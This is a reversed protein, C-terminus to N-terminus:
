DTRQVAYDALNALTERVISPKFILLEQKAQKIYEQAIKETEGIGQYKDIITVIEHFEMNSIKGCIVAEKIKKQESSNCHKLTLIIPMTLKGERLDTGTKKGLIKEESTYDLIDDQLQYALGLNFAFNSLAKTFKDSLKRIIAAGQGCVGMLAATKGAIIKQYEQETITLDNLRTLELVQGESIETVAKVVINWFDKSGHEVFFKSAKCWLFDGLLVSLQNGWKARVATKGRRLDANDIVDDHLLSATHVLEIGTALKIIDTEVSGSLKAALIFLAPRFRKGIDKTVYEAAETLLGVESQLEKAITEEVLALEQHVPILLKNLM